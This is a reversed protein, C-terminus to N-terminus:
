SSSNSCVADVLSWTESTLLVGAERLAELRAVLEMRGEGQTTCAASCM